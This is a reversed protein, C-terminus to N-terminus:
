AHRAELEAVRSKLSDTESSNAYTKYLAFAGLALAIIGLITGWSMGFLGSSSSSGSSTSDDASAFPLLSVRSGLLENNNKKFEKYVNNVNEQFSLKPNVFYSKGNLIIKDKNAEALSVKLENSRLSIKILDGELQATPIEEIKDLSLLDKSTALRMKTGGIDFVLYM